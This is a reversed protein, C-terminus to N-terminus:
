KQCPSRRRKRAEKLLMDVLQPALGSGGRAVFHLPSELSSNVACPDAKRDLLARAVDMNNEEVAIHLATAGDARVPFDVEATGKAALEFVQMILDTELHPSANIMVAVTKKVDEPYCIEARKRVSAWDRIRAMQIINVSIKICIQHKQKVQTWRCNVCRADEATPKCCRANTASGDSSLVLPLELTGSFRHRACPLDVVDASVCVEIQVEGQTYHPQATLVPTPLHLGGARATGDLDEVVDELRVAINHERVIEESQYGSRFSAKSSIECSNQDIICPADRLGLM